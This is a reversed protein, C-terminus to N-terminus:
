LEKEFHQYDKISNWDGGWTWGRETFLEYVLGDRYIGGLQCVLSRDLYETSGVYPNTLPNIDIALGYSHNSLKDTGSIVRYNYASTNNAAMSAEDDFNYEGINTANQIPFQAKYLESFIYEIDDVVSTHVLIVGTHTSSDYGWYNIVVPRIDLDAFDKAYNRLAQRVTIPKGKNTLYKPNHRPNSGILKKTVMASGDAQVLKFTGGAGINHMMYIHYPKPTYGMRKVFTRYNSEALRIAMLTNAKANWIDGMKVGDQAGYTTVMWKWTASCFQFLGKCGTFSKAKPNYNSEIKAIRIMTADSIYTSTNWEAIHDVISGNNVTGAEVKTFAGFVVVLIFLLCSVMQKRNMNDFM